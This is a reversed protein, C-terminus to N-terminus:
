HGKWTTEETRTKGDPSTGPAAVYLDINERRVIVYEEGDRLVVGPNAPKLRWWTGDVLGRPLGESVREAVVTRGHIYDSAARSQRRRTRAVFVAAGIALGFTVIATPILVWWDVGVGTQAQFLFLGGLLLALVGGAAFVGVGPAFLEAIFLGVALLLLVVGILDVPLVAVSFLFLLIMIAGIIGGLGGGPNAIEYLVALTGISLFLFALNPDALTQLIRRTTSMEYDVTAAGATQLTVEQGDEAEGHMTVVMGDVAELLDMQNAAVLDVAGIELAETAGVSRGDRVMDIAFDHDRDRLEAIEAVYSAMDEIVKDLVEGGELQVPTAAGINTGPAM